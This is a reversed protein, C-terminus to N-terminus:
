EGDLAKRMSALMEELLFPKKLVDKVGMNLLHSKEKLDIAGTALILKVKPDLERLKHFLEEGNMKPMFYDSMVLDIAGRHETYVALAEEGNETVFIRYGLSSLGHEYIQRYSDEDDVILICESGTQPVISTTAEGEISHSSEQPLYVSITTGKGKGTEVDVFGKHQRVIGYAVSLRLGAAPDTKRSNFFPEIIRRALYENLEKGNDTVGIMAYNVADASPFKKQVTEGPVVSSQIGIRGGEPMRSQAAIALNVIAQHLQHIDGRIVAEDNGSYVTVSVGPSLASGLIKAVQHLLKAVHVPKSEGEKSRGFVLLDDALEGARKSERFIVGLYEVLIPSSTADKNLIEVSNMVIGAINKLTNGIGVAFDGLADMKQVQQSELEHLRRESVDHFTSLLLKKGNAITFFSHSVEVPIDKGDSRTIVQSAPMKLTGADFQSRFASNGGHHLELNEDGANYDRLLEEYSSKVLDCYAANVMVIRGHRDMVRLADTSKEFITRFREESSRLDSTAKELKKLHHRLELLIVFVLITLGVCIIATTIREVDWFMYDPDSIDVSLFGEYGPVAKQIRLFATANPFGTSAIREGSFSFLSIECGEVPHRHLVEGLIDDASYVLIVPRITIGSRRIPIFAAFYFRDKVKVPKSFRTSPGISERALASDRRILSWVMEITTSDREITTSDKVDMLHFLVDKRESVAVIEPHKTLFDRAASTRDWGEFEADEGPILFYIENERLITRLQYGILELNLNVRSRENEVSMDWLFYFLVAFAAAFVVFFITPFFFKEFTIAISNRQKL